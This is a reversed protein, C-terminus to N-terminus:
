TEYKVGKTEGYDKSLIENIKDKNRKEMRALIEKRHIECYKREEELTDLYDDTHKCGRRMYVTNYNKKMHQECYRYNGKSIVKGCTKCLRVKRTRERMRFNHYARAHEECTMYLLSLVRAKIGCIVCEIIM